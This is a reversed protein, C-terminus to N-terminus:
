KSPLTVTVGADFAVYALGAAVFLAIPRSKM